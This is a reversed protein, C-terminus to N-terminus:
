SQGWQSFIPLLNKASEREVTDDDEPLMSAITSTIAVASTLAFLTMIVCRHTGVVRLKAHMSAGTVCLYLCLLTLPATVANLIEIYVNLKIANPCALLVFAGTVVIGVFSAYFRPAEALTRDLSFVGDAGDGLTDCVAWAAALSVVFIACISGGFFAMSVVIRSAFAGFIPQIAMHIDQISNLNKVESPVAALVMMTAVMILQAVTSGLLSQTREQAVEKTTTLRRAVVASQQFYLMWPMVVSGINAALMRLFSNSRFDFALMGPLVDSLPPAMYVLVVVFTLEFLGFCLAVMETQRYDCCVVIAIVFVCTFLSAAGESLGWLAAVSSIGSMESIIAGFCSTLLLVLSLGAVKMGFHARVMAGFGRKESVGTRVLAELIAFLIPVLMIQVLALSYRWRRGSQAAVFLSGADGDALCCVLAPGLSALSIGGLMSENKDDTYVLASAENYSDKSSMPVSAQGDELGDSTRTDQM